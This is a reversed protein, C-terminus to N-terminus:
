CRTPRLPIPQLGRAVKKAFVTISITLSHYFRRGPFSLLSSVVIKDSLM